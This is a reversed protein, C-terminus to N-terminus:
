GITYRTQCSNIYPLYNRYFLVKSPRVFISGNRIKRVQVLLIPSLGKHTSPGGREIKAIHVRIPVYLVSNAFEAVSGIKFSLDQQILSSTHAL